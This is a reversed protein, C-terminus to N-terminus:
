TFTQNVEPGVDADAGQLRRLRDQLTGMAGSVHARVMM